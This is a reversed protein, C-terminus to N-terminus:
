DRKKRRIVSIGILGLLGTGFLLLSGPEPVAHTTGRGMLNDNGCEMTYHAWFEKDGGIFSLDIGSIQYHSGGVFGVDSDSLNTAYAFTGSEKLTGGSNYQWPNSEDNQGYYVTVTSAETLEYVYYTGGTGDENFVLDIAYDYNFANNVISNGSGSGRNSKGYVPANDVAIFIDGGRVNEVGNNFNYGGVMGLNNNQDLTFAELDWVQSGICNPEVEHDEKVGRTDYKWGNNYWGGGSYSGNDSNGDYITIDDAFVGAAFIVAGAMMVMVKKM